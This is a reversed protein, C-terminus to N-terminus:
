RARRAPNHCDASCARHSDATVEILMKGESLYIAPLMATIVAGIALVLAFPIAFYFWRRKVIDFFYEPTLFQDNQEDPAQAQYSLKQLM